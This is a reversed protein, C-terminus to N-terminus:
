QKREEPICPKDITAGSGNLSVEALELFYYEATGRAPIREERVDLHVQRSTSEGPVLLLHIPEDAHTVWLLIEM